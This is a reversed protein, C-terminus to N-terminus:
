LFPGLSVCKSPYGARSGLASCRHPIQHATDSNRAPHHCL